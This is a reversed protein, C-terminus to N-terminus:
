HLKSHDSTTTANQNSCDAKRISSLSQSAITTTQSAHCHSHSKSRRKRSRSPFAKECRKRKHSTDHQIYGVRKQTELGRMSLPREHGENRRIWVPICSGIFYTPIPVVSDKDLSTAEDIETIREESRPLDHCRNKRIMIFQLLLQALPASQFPSSIRLPKPSTNRAFSLSDLLRTAIM